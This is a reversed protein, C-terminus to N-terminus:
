EAIKPMRKKAFFDNLAEIGIDQITRDNEAAYMRLRRKVDPSVFIALLTKTARGPRYHKSAPAPPGSTVASPASETITGTIVVNRPAM